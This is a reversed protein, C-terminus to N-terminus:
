QCPPIVIISVDKPTPCLSIGVPPIASREAFGEGWGPDAEEGGGRSPPPRPSPDLCSDISGGTPIVAAVSGLTIGRVDYIAVEGTSIGVILRNLPASLAPSNFRASGRGVGQCGSTEPNWVRVMKDLSASITTMGGATLEVSDVVGTHALLIRLCKGSPIDLVRLTEDSSRSGVNGM